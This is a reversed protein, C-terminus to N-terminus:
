LTSVLFLAMLLVAGFSTIVAAKGFWCFIFNTTAFFLYNLVLIFFGSIYLFLQPSQFEVFHNMTEFLKEYL